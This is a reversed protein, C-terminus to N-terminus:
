PVFGDATWSDTEVCAPRKLRILAEVASVLDSDHSFIVAADCKDAITWELDLDLDLDLKVWPQRRCAGEM